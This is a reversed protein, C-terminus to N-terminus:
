LRGFVAAAVDQDGTIVLAEYLPVLVASVHPFAQRRQESYRPKREYSTEDM